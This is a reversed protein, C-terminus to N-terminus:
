DDPETSGRDSSRMDVVSPDFSTRRPLDLPRPSSIRSREAAIAEVTQELARLRAERRAIGGTLVRQIRASEELWADLEALKAQVRREREREARVLARGLAAVERDLESPNAARESVM